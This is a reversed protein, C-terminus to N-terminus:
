FFFSIYETEVHLHINKGVIHKMQKMNTTMKSLKFINEPMMNNTFKVLTEEAFESNKRVITLLMQIIFSIRMAITITQISKRM